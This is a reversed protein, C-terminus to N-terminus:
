VSTTEGSQWYSHLHKYQSDGASDDSQIEHLYVKYDLRWLRTCDINCRVIAYTVTIYSNDNVSPRDICWM